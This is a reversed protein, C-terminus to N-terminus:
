IENYLKIMNKSYDFNNIYLPLKNTNLEKNSIKDALILLHKSIENTNANVIFCDNEKKAIESLDSIETSIFPKECVLGEKVINPWGEYVSTILIMDCANIYLNVDKYDINNLTLLKIKQNKSQAKKISKLALETRKIENNLDISSFLVYIDKDNLSLKRKAKNKDIKHIFDPNPADTISLSKFGYNKELDKKMKKSITIIKKFFNLSILTLFVSNKTKFNEMKSKYNMRYFDSGRLSIIKKSSPLFLTFFGCFSGYQAHVICNKTFLIKFFYYIFNKSYTFLNYKGVYLLEIDIGRDVLKKKSQHMFIGANKVEPDFTHIWYVKRKM